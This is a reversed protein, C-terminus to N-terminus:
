FDFGAARVEDVSRFFGRKKRIAIIRKAKELDIKPFSALEHSTATNINIWLAKKQRADWLTTRILFQSNKIWLEPGINSGIEIEDSFIRQILGGFSDTFKPILERFKQIDGKIGVLAMQEYINGLENFITKGVTTLIFLKLIEERDSPFCDCWEELFTIFIPEQESVKEKVNDWVWFNKLIINEFPTFLEEPEREQPLPSLLFHNYFEPELFNNQLVSNTNIRYFLTALVGECSLMQQANKLRTKDFIPSTYELLVLEELDIDSSAALPMQKRHIYANQLVGNLRLEKDISSHWLNGTSRTYEFSAEYTKRYHPINDFALRQFHVGWGEFFATYYDTIGMSVHQKTSQGKPFNKWINMMMVHGLEHSYIDLDGRALKQEDMVLDVYNLDKFETAQDGTKLALGHRPFGGETQSLLLVNPGQINGSLNRSCQSLKIVSQHFPFDLEATIKKVLPDDPPLKRGSLLSGSHGDAKVLCIKEDPDPFILDAKKDAILASHMLFLFSVTLLSFSYRM